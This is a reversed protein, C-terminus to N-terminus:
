KGLWTKKDTVALSDQFDKASAKVLNLDGVSDKPKSICQPPMLIRM